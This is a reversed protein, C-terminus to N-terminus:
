HQTMDTYANIGQSYPNNKLQSVATEDIRDLLTYEAGIQTPKQRNMSMEYVNTPIYDREENLQVRKTTQNVFERGSMLMSSVKTPARNEITSEKLANIEANYFSGYSTTQGGDVQGAPTVLYKSTEDRSTYKADNQLYSQHRGIGYTTQSPGYQHTSTMERATVPADFGQKNSGKLVDGTAVQGLSAKNEFYTYVKNKNVIGVQERNTVFHKPATSPETYSVKPNNKVRLEDVTYQKARYTDHFGSTGKTDYGGNLGTAVKLQQFPLVNSQIRLSDSYRTQDYDYNPAGQTYENEVDSFKTQEMEKKEKYFEGVSGTLGQGSFSELTRNPKDINPQRVTSGFFPVMNNHTMNKETRVDKYIVNSNPDTAKNHLETARKLEDVKVKDVMNSNYIDIQNRKQNEPVQNIEQVHTREKKGDKNLYYGLGLISALIYMDVIGSM